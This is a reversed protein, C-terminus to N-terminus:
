SGHGCHTCFRSHRVLPAACAVCTGHEAATDFGCDGCFRGGTLPANCQGCTGSTGSAAGTIGALGTAPARERQGPRPPAAGVSQDLCANCCQQETDFCDSCLEESCAPCKAFRGAAQAQAEAFANERATRAGYESFHGSARGVSRLGSFLYSFRSFVGTLQGIRYPKFPTKWQRECRDCYFQYQFGSGIDSGGVSLDRFNKLPM